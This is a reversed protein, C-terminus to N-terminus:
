PAPGGIPRGGAVRSASLPDHGPIRRGCYSKLQCEVDRTPRWRAMARPANGRHGAPGCLCVVPGEQGLVSVSQRLLSPLMSLWTPRFLRLGLTPGPHTRAPPRPSTERRIAAQRASLERCRSRSKMRLISAQNERGIRALVM